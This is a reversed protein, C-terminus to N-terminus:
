LIIDKGESRLCFTSANDNVLAFAASSYNKASLYKPSFQGAHDAYHKELHKPNWTCSKARAIIAPLHDPTLDYNALRDSLITTFVPHDPEMTDFRDYEAPYLYPVVRTRCNYHYPPLSPIVDKTPIGAFFNANTWYAQDHVLPVQNPVAKSLDALDFIRGHMQRCQPTTRDDLIARVQVKQTGRDSYEKLHFLNLSKQYLTESLALQQHIELKKAPKYATTALRLIQTYEPDDRRLTDPRNFIEALRKKLDDESLKNGELYDLLLQNLDNVATSKAVRALLNYRLISM